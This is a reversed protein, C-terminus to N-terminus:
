DTGGPNGIEDNQVALAHLQPQGQANIKSVLGMLYGASFPVNVCTQLAIMVADLEPATLEIKFTPESM